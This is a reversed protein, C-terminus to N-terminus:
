SAEERRRCDVLDTKKPSAAITIFMESSGSDYQHRCSLILPGDHMVNRPCDLLPFGSTGFSVSTHTPLAIRGGSRV